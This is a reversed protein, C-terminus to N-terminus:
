FKLLSKKLLKDIEKIDSKSLPMKFEKSYMDGESNKLPLEIKIKESMFDTVNTINLGPVNEKLQAFTIENGKFNVNLSDINDVGSDDDLPQLFNIIDSNATTVRPRNVNFGEPAINYQEDLGLLRRLEVAGEGYLDGAAISVEGYDAQNDASTRRGKLTYRTSSGPVREIEIGNILNLDEITGNQIASNIQTALARNAKTKDSMKPGSSGIDGTLTSKQNVMPTDKYYVGSSPDDTKLGLTKITQDILMQSMIREAEQEVTMSGNKVADSNEVKTLFEAYSSGKNLMGLNYEYFNKADNYNEMNGAVKTAATSIMNPMPGDGEANLDYITRTYQSGTTTKTRGKISVNQDTIQDKSVILAENLGGKSNILGFGDPGLMQSFEQFTQPIEQIFDNSESDDLDKWAAASIKRDPMKVGNANTGTVLLILDNTDKDYTLNINATPMKGAMANILWQNEEPEYKSADGQLAITKGINANQEEWFEVKEAWSGAFEQTLNLLNQYDSIARKAEARKAPDSFETQLYMQAQSAVDIRDRLINSIELDLGDANPKIADLKGLAQIEMIDINYQMKQMQSIQDRREKEKQLRVAERNAREKEAQAASKDYADFYADVPSGGTPQLPNEYSM